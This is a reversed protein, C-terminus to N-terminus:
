NIVVSGPPRAPPSSCPLWSRSDKEADRTETIFSTLVAGASFGAVAGAIVEGLASWALSAVNAAEAIGKGNKRAAVEAKDLPATFGGIRAILDLTLTGLSNAM